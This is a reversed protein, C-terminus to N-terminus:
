EQLQDAWPIEEARALEKLLLVTNRDICHDALKQLISVRVNRLLTLLNRVGEHLGPNKSMSILEFVALETSSVLIEPSRGPACRLHNSCELKEDFIVANTYTIPFFSAVWAPIELYCSGWLYIPERFYINHRVGRWSLATREAVHLGDVLTALYCITGDLSPSDGHMLYVGSQLETLWGKESLSAAIDFNIGLTTFLAGDLPRGRPASSMLHQVTEREDHMM